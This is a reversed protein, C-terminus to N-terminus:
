KSINFDPYQSLDLDKLNPHCKDKESLIIEDINELPWQINIEPDNWIVGGDYESCYFDTCKYNFVAEESLVLFGHAFGEPIYFQKKNEESLVVGVYKGYTESGHRLDVAVDFVEGKTVRVLKGQSNKQSTYGELFAKQHNQNM